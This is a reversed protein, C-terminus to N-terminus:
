INHETNPQNDNHQTDHCGVFPCWTRKKPPPPLACQAIITKVPLVISYYRGIILTSQQFFCINRAIIANTLVLFVPLNFYFLIKYFVFNLSAAM